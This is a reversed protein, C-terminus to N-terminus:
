TWFLLSYQTMLFWKKCMPIAKCHLCLRSTLRPPQQWFPLWSPSSVTMKSWIPRSCCQCWPPCTGILCSVFLLFIWSQTLLLAINYIAQTFTVLFIFVSRSVSNFTGPFSQYICTEWIHPMWRCPTRTEAITSFSWDSQPSLHQASCRGWAAWLYILTSRLVFLWKLFWDFSVSVILKLLCVLRFPMWNTTYCWRSSPPNLVPCM